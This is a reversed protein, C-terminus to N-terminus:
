KDIGVVPGCVRGDSITPRRYHMWQHIGNHLGKFVLDYPIDKEDCTVCKWQKLAPAPPPADPLPHKGHRPCYDDCWEYGSGCTCEKGERVIKQNIDQADPYRRLAERNMNALSGGWEVGAVFADRQEKVSM